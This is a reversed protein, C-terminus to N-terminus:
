CTCKFCIKLNNGVVNKTLILFIVYLQEITTISVSPEVYKISKLEFEKTKMNFDYEECPSEYHGCSEVVDIDERYVVFKMCQSYDKQEDSLMLKFIGSPITNEKLCKSDWVIRAENDYWTLQSCTTKILDMVVFFWEHFIPEGIYLVACRYKKSLLYSIQNYLPLSEDHEIM